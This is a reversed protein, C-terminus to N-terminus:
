KTKKALVTQCKCSYAFGFWACLVLFIVYYLNLLWEKGRTQIRFNIKNESPHTITYGCFEVDESGSFLFPYSCFIHNNYDANQQADTHSRKPRGGVM